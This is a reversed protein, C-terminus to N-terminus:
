LHKLAKELIEKTKPLCVNYDIDEINFWKANLIESDKSYDLVGSKYLAPYCLLIVQTSSATFVHNEIFLADEIPDIEIGVEERIERILTENPHEGFEIEGGPFAWKLHSYVSEPNNRQIMLIERNTNAIIGLVPIYLKKSSM